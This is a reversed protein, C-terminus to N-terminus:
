AGSMESEDTALCSTAQDHLSMAGIKCPTAGKYASIAARGGLTKRRLITPPRPETMRKRWRKPDTQSCRTLNTSRVAYCCTEYAERAYPM